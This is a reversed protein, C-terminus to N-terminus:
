NANEGAEIKSFDLVDNIIHLLVSSAEKIKAIYGAQMQNMATKSMLHSMGMIANMPTRIEHSM